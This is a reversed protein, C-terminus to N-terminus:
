LSVLARKLLNLLNFCVELMVLLISSLDLMENAEQPARALDARRERNGLLKLTKLRKAFPEKPHRDTIQLVIM